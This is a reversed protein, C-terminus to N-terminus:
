RRGSFPKFRYNVSILAFYYMDNKDSAEPSFGDLYDSLIFRRGVEFSAAWKKDFRYQMGLGYPVVLSIKSYDDDFTYDHNGAEPNPNSFITGAGAFAYLGLKPVNLVLGDWDKRGFLDTYFFYYELQITSEIIQTKYSYKRTFNKTGEDTDIGVAYALNLRAVIDNKVYYRAAIFGVPGIGGDGIDCFFMNPGGGLLVEMECLETRQALIVSNSVILFLIFTISKKM